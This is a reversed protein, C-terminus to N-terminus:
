PKVFFDVFCKWNRLRTKHSLVGGKSDNGSIDSDVKNSAIFFRSILLSGHFVISSVVVIDVELLEAILIDRLWVISLRAEPREALLSEVLLRGAEASLSGGVVLLRGAVDEVLGATVTM